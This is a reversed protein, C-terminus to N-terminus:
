YQIRQLASVSLSSQGFEDEASLTIRYGGPAIFETDSVKGNWGLTIGTGASVDEFVTRYVETGVDLSDVRMLIDASRSLDFRMANTLGSSSISPFFISPSVSLNEIKTEHNLFIANDSATLGFIAPVYGGNNRRTPLIKGDTGDAFWNISYDGQPLNRSRFFTAPSFNESGRVTIYASVKANQPLDFAFNLPTAGFPMFTRVNNVTEFGTITLTGCEVGRDCRSSVSPDNPYFILGGTSTRLDITEEREDARYRIVAYYDGPPLVAGADSRGDWNFVYEGTDTEQWDIFTKTIAGAADEIVFQVPSAGNVSLTIDTTEASEPNIATDTITLSHNANVTVAIIDRGVSGDESTVTLTPYFTGVREYVFTPRTDTTNDIVGDGEFDWAYQANSSAGRASSNFSVSLPADGEVPRASVSVSAVDELVANVQLNLPTLVLPEDLTDTIRIIPTFAGAQEYLHEINARISPRPPDFPMSEDYIGDGEFDWEVLKIGENDTASVIELTALMPVTGTTPSARVVGQPPSNDVTITIEADAQVENLDWVRVRTTYTGPVNFTHVLDRGVVDFERAGLGSLTLRDFGLTDEVGLGGDVTGGDGEFDWYYRNIATRSDVIPTFRIDLPAPGQLANAQISVAAAERVTVFQSIVNCDSGLEALLRYDTSQEPTVSLQGSTEVVGIDPEITLKTSDLSEWQLVTSEGENIFPRSVTFEAAPLGSPSACATLPEDLLSDDNDNSDCGAAVCASLIATVKAFGKLSLVHHQM